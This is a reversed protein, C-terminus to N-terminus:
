LPRCHGLVGNGLLNDVGSEANMRRQARAQEFGNVIRDQRIFQAAPSDARHALLRDRDDILIDADVRAEPCVQDYFVLDDHFDFGHLKIAGTWM